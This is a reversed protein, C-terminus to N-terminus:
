SGGLKLRVDKDQSNRQLHLTIIDGVQHDALISELEDATRVRDNDVGLIVDGAELGSRDALSNRRLDTVVVGFNSTIKFYQKVDDNLEAVRFGVDGINNNQVIGKRLREAVQKVKNVPIAFGLGISGAQGQM